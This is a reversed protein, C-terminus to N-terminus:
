ASTPFVSGSSGSFPMRTLEELTGLRTMEPAQYDEREDPEVIEEQEM